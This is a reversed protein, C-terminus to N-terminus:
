RNVIFYEVGNDETEWVVCGYRTITKAVKPFNSQIYESFAMCIDAALNEATPEPNLDNLYTHDYRNEIVKVFDKIKGFDIVMGGEQVMNSQLNVEFEFRHGHTASCKPHGELHHAAEFKGRRRLKWM